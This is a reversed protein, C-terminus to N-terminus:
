GFLPEPYHAPFGASGKGEPSLANAASPQLPM